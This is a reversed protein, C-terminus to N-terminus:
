IADYYDVVRGLVGGLIALTFEAAALWWLEPSLTAKHQVIRNILDIILKTVWATSVPILSVAARVVLGLTVISPGSEWVIRLVPPVNKLARLREKWATLFPQQPDATM